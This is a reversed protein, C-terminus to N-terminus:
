KPRRPARPARLRPGLSRPPTFLPYVFLAFVIAFAAVGFVAALSADAGFAAFAGAAAAFAAAGAFFAAAGALAAAEAALTAALRTPAAPLTRWTMPATTSTCNSSWRGAMRFASSVSLTPLRRTSSTAWCRPSFVTRQMAMSEVSPRTRPWSTKSVPAGIETGTPGPMSPRMMLTMPSGTSSAPGTSATSSRAM